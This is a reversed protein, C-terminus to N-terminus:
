KEWWRQLLQATLALRGFLITKEGLLKEEAKIERKLNSLVPAVILAGLVCLFRNRPKDYFKVMWEAIMRCCGMFRRWIGICWRSVVTDRGVFRVLLVLNEVM